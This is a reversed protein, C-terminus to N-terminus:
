CQRSDSAHVHIVLGTRKCDVCIAEEIGLLLLEDFVSGDEYIGRGTEDCFYILSLIGEWFRDLFRVDVQSAFANEGAENVCM